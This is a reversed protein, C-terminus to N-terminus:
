TMKLVYIRFIQHNWTQSMVHYNTSYKQMKVNSSTMNEIRQHKISSDLFYDVSYDVLQENCGVDSTCIQKHAAKLFM